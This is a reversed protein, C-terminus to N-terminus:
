ALVLPQPTTGRVFPVGDLHLTGEYGRLKDPGQLSDWTAAFHEHCLNARKQEVLDGYDFTEQIIHPGPNTCPAGGVAENNCEKTGRPDNKILEIKNM